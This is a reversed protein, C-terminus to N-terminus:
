YTCIAREEELSVIIKCSLVVGTPGFVGTNHATFPINRLHPAHQRVGQQPIQLTYLGFPIGSGFSPSCTPTPPLSCNAQSDSDLCTLPSKPNYPASHVPISQFSSWLRCSTRHRLQKHISNAHHSHNEAFLYLHVATHMSHLMVYLFSVIVGNESSNARARLQKTPCFGSTVVGCLNAGGVIPVSSRKHLPRLLFLNQASVDRTPTIHLRFPAIAAIRSVPELIGPRRTGTQTPLTPPPATPIAFLKLVIRSHTM